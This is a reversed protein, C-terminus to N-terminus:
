QTRCAAKATACCRGSQNMGIAAWSERRNIWGDMVRDVWGGLWGDM